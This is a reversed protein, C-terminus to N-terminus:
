FLFHFGFDVLGFGVQSREVVLLQLSGGSKGDQLVVLQGGFQVVLGLLGLLQDCLVGVHGVLYVRKFAVDTEVLVDLLLKALACEVTLFDYLFQLYLCFLELFVLLRNLLLLIHRALRIVLLVVFRRQLVLFIGVKLALIQDVEQLAFEFLDLLIESDGLLLVLAHL